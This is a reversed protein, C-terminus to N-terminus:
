DEQRPIFLGVGAPSGPVGSEHTPVLNVEILAPDRTDDRRLHPGIAQVEVEVVNGDMRVWNDPPIHILLRQGERITITKM